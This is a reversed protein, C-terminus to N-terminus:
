LEAGPNRHLDLAWQAAAPAIVARDTSIALVRSEVGPIKSQIPIILGFHQGPPLKAKVLDMIEKAIPQLALMYGIEAEREPTDPSRSELKSM